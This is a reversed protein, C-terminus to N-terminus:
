SNMIEERLFIYFAITFQLTQYLFPDYADAKLTRVREQCIKANSFLDDLFIRSFLSELFQLHISM